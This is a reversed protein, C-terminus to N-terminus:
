QRIGSDTETAGVEEWNFLKINLMATARLSLRDRMTSQNEAKTSPQARMTTNQGARVRAEEMSIWEFTGDDLFWACAGELTPRFQEGEEEEEL